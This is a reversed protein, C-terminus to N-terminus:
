LTISFLLWLLVGVGFLCITDFCGAYLVNVFDVLYAYVLLGVFVCVVIMFGLWLVIYGFGVMDGVYFWLGVVFWFTDAFWLGVLFGLGFGLWLLVCVYVVFGVCLVLLVLSCVVPWRLCGFWM